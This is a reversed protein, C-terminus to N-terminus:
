TRAGTGDLARRLEAIREAKTQQQHWYGYDDSYEYAPDFGTEAEALARQLQAQTPVHRPPPPPVEHREHRAKVADAISQLEARMAAEAALREHRYVPEGRARQREAFADALDGFAAYLPSPNLLAAKEAPTTAANM